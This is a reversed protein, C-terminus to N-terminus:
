YRLFIFCICSFWFFFIPVYSAQKKDKCDGSLQMLLERMKEPKDFCSRALRLPDRFENVMKNLETIQSAVHWILRESM